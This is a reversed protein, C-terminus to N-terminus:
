FITLIAYQFIVGEDDELDKNDEEMIEQRRREEWAQRRRLKGEEKQRKLEAEANQKRREKKRDRVTSHLCFM